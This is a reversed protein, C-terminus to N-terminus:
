SGKYPCFQPDNLLAKMERVALPLGVFVARAVIAHGINAEELQPILQMWHANVYNLGHGAHV